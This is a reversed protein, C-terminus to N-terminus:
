SLLYVWARLHDSGVAVVVAALVLLSLFWFAQPACCWRRGLLRFARDGFAVFRLLLALLRLNCKGFLQKRDRRQAWPILTVWCIM